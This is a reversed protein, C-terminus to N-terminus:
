TTAKLDTGAVLRPGGTHKKMGAKCLALVHKANFRKVEALDPSGFLEQFVDYTFWRYASVMTDIRAPDFPLDPEMIITSGEVEIFSFRHGAHFGDFDVRLMYSDLMNPDYGDDILRKRLSLTQQDHEM